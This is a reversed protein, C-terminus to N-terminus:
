SASGYKRRMRQRIAEDIQTCDLMAGAADTALFGCLLPLPKRRHM